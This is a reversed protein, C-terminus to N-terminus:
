GEEDEYETVRFELEDQNGDCDQAIFDKAIKEVEEKSEAEIYPIYPYNYYEDSWEDSPIECDKVKKRIEVIYKM